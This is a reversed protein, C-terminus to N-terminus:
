YGKTKVKFFASIGGFGDALKIIGNYKAKVPFFFFILLPLGIALYFFSVCLKKFVSLYKKERILISTYVNATRFTREMMWDINTRAVPINEMVISKRSWVIKANYNLAKFGFYTDESGSFNFREDFRLNYKRVFNVDIVFNNTEFFKVEQNDAIDHTRFWKSISNPVPVEFDPVVPGMAIECANKIISCILEILWNETVYEDDDVCVIYNPGLSLAIEFINNRVCALGRQICNEYQLKININKSFVFNKVPQEASGQVDNDVVLVTIEGISVDTINAEDISRLLKVLMETRRFTPIGIVIKNM